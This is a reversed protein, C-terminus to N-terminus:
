GAHVAPHNECGTDGPKWGPSKTCTGPGSPRTSELPRRGALRVAARHRPNAHLMSGPKWGPSRPVRTAEVFLGRRFGPSEPDCAKGPAMSRPNSGPCQTGDDLMSPPTTKVGPTGPNGGPAKQSVRSRCLFGGAPAPPSRTAHMGPHWAARTQVPVNRATMRCPRRPPKCVRHGRTEVRPKKSRADEVFLGRRSGPSEPDCAKGPAMRHPNSGPCQTRDDLMSPPTTKVGPTGPNGGPAKQFARRKWLFGRRSGPSEPDCRMGPAMSRPNSGPCQTRDDPM